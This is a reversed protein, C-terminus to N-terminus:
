CIHRKHQIGSAPYKTEFIKAIDKSPVLSKSWVIKGEKKAGKYLVRERDAGSFKVLDALTSPKCTQASAAGSLSAIVIL